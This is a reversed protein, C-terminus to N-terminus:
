TTPVVLVFTGSGSNIYCGGTSSVADWYVNYITTEKPEQYFHIAKIITPESAPGGDDTVLEPEGVGWYIRWTFKCGETNGNNGSDLILEPNTSDCADTSAASIVCIPSGAVAASSLRATATGANIGQQSAGSVSAALVPETTGQFAALAVGMVVVVAALASRATTRAGGWRFPGAAKEAAPPRGYMSNRAARSQTSNGPFAVNEAAPIQNTNAANDSM